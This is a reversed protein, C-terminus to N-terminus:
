LRCCVVFSPPLKPLTKNYAIPHNKYIEVLFLDGVLIHRMVGWLPGVAWLATVMKMWRSLIENVPWCRTKSRKTFAHFINSKNWPILKYCYLLNSHKRLKHNFLWVRVMKDHPISLHCIIQVCQRWVNCLMSSYRKMPMYNENNLDICTYSEITTHFIISIRNIMEMRRSATNCRLRIFWIAPM